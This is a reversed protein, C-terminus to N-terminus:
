IISFRVLMLMGAGVGSLFGNANKPATTYNATSTNANLLSHVMEPFLKLSPKKNMMIAVTGTVFPAAFSTGMNGNGHFWITEKPIHPMGYAVLTPKTAAMKDTNKSSYSALNGEYDTAGVTIVNAANGFCTIGDGNNGASKVVVVL